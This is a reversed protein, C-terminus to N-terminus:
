VGCPGLVAVLPARVLRNALAEIERERGVFYDADGTGYAALGPYPSRDDAPDASTESDETSLAALRTGAAEDDREFGWPAAVLRAAGRGGRWLLFLERDSSPLPAVVQALPSLRAIVKGSADLLAVEDLALPDWAVRRERTSRRPGRWSEAAGDSTGVVLEYALMPELPVLAEALAAVDNALAVATRARAPDDLRDTLEALKDTAAITRAIGAPPSAAASVAARALALWPRGDDRGLVGRAYERVRADGLGAGGSGLTALGVVALWRCTIAVAERLAADVEVTTTAAVLQALVDAIPQPGSRLWAGPDFAPVAESVVAGSAKQIAEGFAVATPWRDGPAKALAKGIADRLLIPVSTPLPPPQLKAHADGLKAREVRQFPLLGSVCRYALVGLAYTDARGDVDHPKTWQEPAMYAPSGLTVGHGTLEDDFIGPSVEGGEAKAIGFDLLKPLLQGAREIVMVNSGKIDRHVIGLEHATHVVECLRVFLPAFLAAPMAGRTVVLEDLTVGRVHEMAIWLVGDPEAGFAYVHAAYPHDLRSALKAER